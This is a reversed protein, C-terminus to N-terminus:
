AIVEVAFEVGLYEIDGYQYVGLGSANQVRTTDASGSLTPDGEIAAKISWDGTGSACLGLLQQATRESARGTIVRVIFSYTDAGRAMVTDYEVGTPLGVIAGPIAATDLQDAQARLGPITALQAALGAQITAIDAM